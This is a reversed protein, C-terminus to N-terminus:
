EIRVKLVSTVAHSPLVETFFNRTNVYKNSVGLNRLDCNVSFACSLVIVVVYTRNKLWFSLHQDRHLAVMVWSTRIRLDFPEWLATLM